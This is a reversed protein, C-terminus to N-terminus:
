LSWPPAFTKDGMTARMGASTIVTARMPEPSANRLVLSTHPPVIVADGPGAQVDQAGVTADIRGSHVVFVEERDLTHAEGIMGPALNLAWVALETSGRSPVALSRFVANGLAFEPAESLTALTM